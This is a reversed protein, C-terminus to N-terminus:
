WRRLAIRCSMSTASPHGSRNTILYFLSSNVGETSSMWSTTSFCIYSSSLLATTSQLLLIRSGPAVVVLEVLGACIVVIGSERVDVIDGGDVDAMGM